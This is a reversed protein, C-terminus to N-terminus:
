FCQSLNQWDATFACKNLIGQFLWIKDVKLEIEQQPADQKRTIM